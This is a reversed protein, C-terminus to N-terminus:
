KKKGFHEHHLQGVGSGVRKALANLILVVAGLIGFIILLVILPTALNILFNGTANGWGGLFNISDRAVLVTSSEGVTLSTSLTSNQTSLNGAEVSTINVFIVDGTTFNYVSSPYTQVVTWNFTNSGNANSLQNVFSKNITNVNNVFFLATTNITANTTDTVNWVILYNQNIKISSPQSTILPFTNNTAAFVGSSSLILLMLLFFISVTNKTNNKM